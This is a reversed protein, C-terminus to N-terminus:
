KKEEKYKESSILGVAVKLEKDDQKNLGHFIYMISEPLMGELIFSLPMSPLIAVTGNQVRQFYSM